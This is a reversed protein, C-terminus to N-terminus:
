LLRVGPCLRHLLAAPSSLRQGPGQGWLPAGEKVLTQRTGELGVRQAVAVLPPTLTMGLLTVAVRAGSGMRQRWRRATREPVARRRELTHQEVTRWSYQLRRAAFGPLQRYTARCAKAACRQVVIRLSGVEEGKLWREQYQHRHVVGHGCGPCSRLRYGEPDVLRREHEARDQVGEVILTGGKQSSPYPRDLCAGTSPPPLRQPSM